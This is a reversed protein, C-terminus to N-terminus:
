VAAVGSVQRVVNATLDPRSIAGGALQIFTAEPLLDKGREHLEATFWGGAGEYAITLRNGLATAADGPEDAIWEELRALSAAHPIYAVTEDVRERLDDEGMEPNGRTIAAVLGSRYDARMMRILASLVSDSAVLADTGEAQGPLIPISDISVVHPIVDPRQAAAHVARNTADGNGVVAAIPGIAEALAILDEADTQMDFPGEPSSEGAGRVDYRIVRHDRALDDRLPGLVSPHQIYSPAVIITPGEGQEEWHIRIADGRQVYPM